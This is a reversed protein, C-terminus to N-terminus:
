PHNAHHDDILRKARARTASQALSRSNSETSSSYATEDWFLARVGPSDFAATRGSLQDKQSDM